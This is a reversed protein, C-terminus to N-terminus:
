KLGLAKDFCKAAMDSKAYTDSKIKSDDKSLTIFVKGEKIEAKHTRQVINKGTSWGNTKRLKGNSDFEVLQSYKKGCTLSVPYKHWPCKLCPDGNIEEIDGLTLPGGTHYCISDLCYINTKHVVVSVKRGEVTGHFRGGGEKLEGAYM